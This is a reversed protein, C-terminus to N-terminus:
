ITVRHSAAAETSEPRQLPVPMQGATAGDEPLVCLSCYYYYYCCCCYYYYYCCCCCYYYYCCCYTVHSKEGPLTVENVHPNCGNLGNSVDDATLFVGDHSKCTVMMHGCAVGM